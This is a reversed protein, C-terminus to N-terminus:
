ETHEFRGAQLLFGVSNGGEVIRLISFFNKDAIGQFLYVQKICLNTQNYTNNKYVFYVTCLISSVISKSQTCIRSFTEATAQTSLDGLKDLINHSLSSSLQIFLKHCHSKSKFNHYVFISMCYQLFYQLFVGFFFWNYMGLLTKARVTFIILHLNNKNM